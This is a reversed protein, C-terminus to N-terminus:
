RSGSGHVMHTNVNMYAAQTEPIVNIQEAMTSKNLAKTDAMSRAYTAESYEVNKEWQKNAQVESVVISVAANAATYLLSVLITGIPGM